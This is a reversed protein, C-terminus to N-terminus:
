ATNEGLVRYCIGLRCLDDRRVTENVATDVANGVPKDFKLQYKYKREIKDNLNVRQSHGTYTFGMREYLRIARHNEEFVWLLFQEVDSCKACEVEILFTVLREGLQCGRLHPAIWVSEISRAKGPAVDSDMEYDLRAVAVGVVEENQQIVVWTAADIDKAWYDLEISDIDDSTKLFAEPSTKISDRLARQLTLAEDHLTRGLQAKVASETALAHTLVDERGRWLNGDIAPLALSVQWMSVNRTTGSGRRLGTRRPRGGAHCHHMVVTSVNCSGTSRDPSSSPLPGSSTRRRRGNSARM